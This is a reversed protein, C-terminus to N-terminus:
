VRRYGTDLWMVLSGPTPGVAREPGGQNSFSSSDPSAPARAGAEGPGAEGKVSLMDACSGEWAVKSSRWPCVQLSDLLSPAGPFSVDIPLPSGPMCACVHLHKCPLWTKWPKLFFQFDLNKRSIDQNKSYEMLWFPFCFVLGRLFLGLCCCFVVLSLGIMEVFWTQPGSNAVESLMQCAM